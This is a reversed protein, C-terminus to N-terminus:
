RGGGIMRMRPESQRRPSEFFDPVKLGNEVKGDRIGLIACIADVSPHEEVEMYREVAAVLAPYENPRIEKM